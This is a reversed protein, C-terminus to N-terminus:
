WRATVRKGISRTAIIGTMGGASTVVTDIEDGNKVVVFNVAVPPRKDSFTINFTGTCDPNVTYTGSAPQESFDAVPVGAVTVSDIQSLQGNGDFTTMAVGMQTGVPGLGGLKQGEITFGYMGRILTNNCRHASNEAVARQVAGLSLFVAAIAAIAMQKRMIKEVTKSNKPAPTDGGVDFTRRDQTGPADFAM